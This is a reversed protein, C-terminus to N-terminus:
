DKLNEAKNIISSKRTVKNKKGVDINKYKNFRGTLCKTRM